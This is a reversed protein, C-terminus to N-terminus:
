DLDAIKFEENQSPELKSINDPQTQLDLINILFQKLVGVKVYGNLDGNM